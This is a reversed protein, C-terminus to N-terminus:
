KYNNFINRLVKFTSTEEIVEISPTPIIDKPEFNTIEVSKRIESLHKKINEPVIFEYEDLYMRPFIIDLSFEEQMKLLGKVENEISYNFGKMEMFAEIAFLSFWPKNEKLNNFTDRM